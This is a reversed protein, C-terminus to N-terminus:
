CNGFVSCPQAAPAVIVCEGLRLAQHTGEGCWVPRLLLLGAADALLASSMPSSDMVSVAHKGNAAAPAAWDPAMTFNYVEGPNLQWRPLFTPVFLSPLLWALQPYNICTLGYAAGSGM